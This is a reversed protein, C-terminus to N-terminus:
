SLVRITLPKMRTNSAFPTIHHHCRRWNDYGGASRGARTRRRTRWSGYGVTELIRPTCQYLHGGSGTQYGITRILVCELPGGALAM